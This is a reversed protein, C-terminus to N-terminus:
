FDSNTPELQFANERIWEISVDKPDRDICWLGVTTDHYYSLQEIQRIYEEKKYTKFKFRKGFLKFWFKCFFCSCNHTDSAVDKRNDFEELLFESTWEEFQRLISKDKCYQVPMQKDKYIEEGDVLVIREITDYSTFIGSKRGILHNFIVEIKHTMKKM